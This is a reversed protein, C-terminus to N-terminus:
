RYHMAPDYSHLRTTRSGRAASDPPPPSLILSLIFIKFSFCYRHDEVYKLNKLFTAPFEIVLQSKKLFGDNRYLASM